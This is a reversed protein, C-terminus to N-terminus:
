LYLNRTDGCQQHSSVTSENRSVIEKERLPAFACLFVKSVRCRKAGTRTQAQAGTRSFDEEERYQEHLAPEVNGSCCFQM